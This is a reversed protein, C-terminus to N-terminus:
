NAKVLQNKLVGLIKSESVGEVVRETIGDRVEALAIKEAESITDAQVLYQERITKTKGEKETPMIFKVKALYYM